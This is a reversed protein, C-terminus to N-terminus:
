PLTEKALAVVRQKITLIDEYQDYVYDQLRAPDVAAAPDVPDIDLRRSNYAM